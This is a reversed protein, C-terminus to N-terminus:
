KYRNIRQNPPLIVNLADQLKRPSELKGISLIAAYFIKNILMEEDSNREIKSALPIILVYALLAGYLTTLMALAMPAGIGSPDELQGLMQVLGILTGILGMAPAVEAAKKLIAASRDNREITNEIYQVLVPEVEELKAGDIVMRLGKYFLCNKDIDKEINQVGLLGVKKAQEAIDLTRNALQEVSNIRVFVVEAMTQKLDLIDKGSFCAITVAITGLVVILISPIDIFGAPNKGMFIAAVILGFCILIGFVTTFDSGNSVSIKM